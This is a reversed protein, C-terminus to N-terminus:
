GRSAEGARPHLGTNTSKLCSRSDYYWHVKHLIDHVSALCSNQSVAVETIAQRSFASPPEKWRFQLRGDEMGRWWEGETCLYYCFVNSFNANCFLIYTIALDLM